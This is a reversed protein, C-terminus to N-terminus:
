SDERFVVRWQNDEKILETTEVITVIPVQANSLYETQKEIIFIGRAFDKLGLSDAERDVGEPLWTPDPQRFRLSVLAKKRSISVADIKIETQPYYAKWYAKIVRHQTPGYGVKRAFDSYTISTRSARDLLNYAADANGQFIYNWYSVAKERIEREDEKKNAPCGIFSLALIAFAGLSISMKIFPKQFM